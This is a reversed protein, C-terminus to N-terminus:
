HASALSFSMFRSAMGVRLALATSILAGHQNVVVTEGDCQLPESLGKPEIGVRM